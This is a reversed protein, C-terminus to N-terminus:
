VASKVATATASKNQIVIDTIQLKSSPTVAISCDFEMPLPQVILKAFALETLDFEVPRYGCANVITGEILIPQMVYAMYMSYNNGSAKAKGARNYIGSILFRQQM